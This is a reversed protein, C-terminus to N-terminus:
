ATVWNWIVRLVIGIEFFVATAFLVFAVREIGLVFVAGAVVVLLVAAWHLVRVM